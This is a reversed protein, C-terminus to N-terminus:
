GNFQPFKKMIKSIEALDEEDLDFWEGRLRKDIFKKHLEKELPKNVIWKAMISIDPEQAQLTRERYEPIKSRGIKYYKNQNNFMLYIYHEDDKLIKPKSTPIFTFKQMTKRIFPLFIIGKGRYKIGLGVNTKKVESIIDDEIIDFKYKEFITLQQSQFTNFFTKFNSEKGEKFIQSLYSSFLSVMQNRNKELPQLVIYFGKLNENRSIYYIIFDFNIVSDDYVLIGFVENHQGNVVSFVNGNTDSLKHIEEETFEYLCNEFQKFIKKPVHNKM